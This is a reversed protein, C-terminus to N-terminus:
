EKPFLKNLSKVLKDINNAREEEKKEKELRIKNKSEEQKKVEVIADGAFNKIGRIMYVLQIASFAIISIIALAVFLMAIDKNAMTFVVGLLIFGLSSWGAIMELNEVSM